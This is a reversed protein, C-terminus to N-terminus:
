VKGAYKYDRVYGDKLNALLLRRTTGVAAHLAELDWQPCAGMLAYAGPRLAKQTLASLVGGEGGARQRAGTFGGECCAAVYDALLHACYRGMAKKDGGAVEEYLRSLACGIVQGVTEDL